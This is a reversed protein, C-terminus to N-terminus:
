KHKVNLKNILFEADRNSIKAGGNKGVHDNIRQLNIRSGMIVVEDEANENSINFEGATTINVFCLSYNEHVWKPVETIIQVTDKKEKIKPM